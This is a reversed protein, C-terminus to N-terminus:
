RRSSTVFNYAIIEIAAPTLQYLAKYGFKAVNLVIEKHELTLAISHNAIELPKGNANLLERVVAIEESSMRGLEVSVHSIEAKLSKTQKYESYKTKVGQFAFQFTLSCILSIAVLSVDGLGVWDPLYAPSKQQLFLYWEFPQFAYLLILLVLWMTFDKLRVTQILFKFFDWM